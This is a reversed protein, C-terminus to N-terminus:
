QFIRQLSSFPRRCMPCTRFAQAAGGSAREARFTEACSSCVALHGDGTDAHMFAFTRRREMCIVCQDEAHTEANKAEEGALSLVLRRAKAQWGGLGLRKVTHQVSRDDGFIIQYQGTALDGTQDNSVGRTSDCPLSFAVKKKGELWAAEVM